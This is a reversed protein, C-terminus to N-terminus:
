TRPTASLRSGGFGCCAYGNNAFHCRYRASSSDHSVRQQRASSSPTRWASKRRSLLPLSLWPLTPATTHYQQTTGPIPTHAHPHTNQPPILSAISEFFIHLNKEVSNKSQCIWDFFDLKEVPGGTPFSLRFFNLRFLGKEVTYFLGIQAEASFPRKRSVLGVTHSIAKTSPQHLIGTKHTAKEPCQLPLCIHVM